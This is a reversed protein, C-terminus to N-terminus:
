KLVTLLDQVRYFVRRQKDAIVTVPDTPKGVSISPLLIEKDLWEDYNTTVFTKGLSSLSGFLQRGKKESKNDIPHLLTRFDIPTKYEEELGRAISLKVRPPQERLQDFQAHSLQGREVFQRLAGDAFDPWGPCGALRSAGAGIFPILTGRQAADRLGRRISETIEFEM